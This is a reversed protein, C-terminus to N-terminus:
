RGLMVSKVDVKTELQDVVPFGLVLLLEFFPLKRLVERFFLSFVDQMFLVLSVLGALLTCDRPM